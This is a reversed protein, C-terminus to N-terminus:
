PAGTCHAITLLNTTLSVMRHHNDLTVFSFRIFDLVSNPTARVVTLKSARDSDTIAWLLVCDVVV